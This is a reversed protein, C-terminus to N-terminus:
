LSLDNTCEGTACSMDVLVSDEGSERRRGIVPEFYETAMEFERDAGPFGAAAFGQRWGREYAFSVSPSTFLDRMPIYEMDSKTANAIITRLPPPTFSLLSSLIPSSSASVARSGEDVDEGDSASSSASAPELLNIYTNTRGEFVRDSGASSSLSLRVGSRSTAGGLIPGRVSLRLPEKTLPDVLVPDYAAEGERSSPSPGGIRGLLARKLRLREAERADSSKTAAESADEALASSSRATTTRPALPPQQPAVFAAAQHSLIALAAAASAVKM